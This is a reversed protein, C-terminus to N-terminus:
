RIPISCPVAIGHRGARAQRVREELCGQSTRRGGGGGRAFWRTCGLCVVSLVACGNTRDADVISELIVAAPKADEVSPQDQDRHIAQVVDGELESRSEAPHEEDARGHKQCGVEQALYAANRPQM